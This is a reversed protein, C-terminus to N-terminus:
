EEGVVGKEQWAKIEEQSFGAEQLVAEAQENFHPPPALPQDPAFPQGTLALSRLGKLTDGAALLLEQAQPQALAEDLRLVAGAPV